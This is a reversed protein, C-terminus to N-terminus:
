IRVSSPAASGLSVLKFCGLLHSNHLLIILTSAQRLGTEFPVVKLINEAKM